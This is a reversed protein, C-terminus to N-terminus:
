RAFAIVQYAKAVNGVVSGPFAPDFKDAYKKILFDAVSKKASDLSDGQSYSSATRDMLDQLYAKWLEFKEKGHIVDGHGGIVSDFDLKEATDLTQIWDYPYSDGMFPTWGHLADGTVLVKEQPLYVFVDGDTHARGLWLIEVTRSGRHLILSRDFTMTPLTVQVTKLEALYATAQRLNEQIAKKQEATSAKALDQNLKAIEEPLTLIENKIRPIGLRQINKRTAESSIIEVGGPWSSPYAENGQYHDYHFHTNVVYKVPKPTLKKIQEILARAASPKSHTDVVLVGDDLMIIAANSNVRFAPKALAAYVGDAVPKLDFLEQGSALPLFGLLFLVVLHPKMM